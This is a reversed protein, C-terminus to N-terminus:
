WWLCKYFYQCKLFINSYKDYYFKFRFSILELIVEEVDYFDTEFEWFINYLKVHM